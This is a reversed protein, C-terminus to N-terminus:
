SAFVDFRAVERCALLYVVFDEIKQGVVHACLYGFVNCRVQRLKAFRLQQLSEGGFWSRAGAWPAAGRRVCSTVSLKRPRWAASVFRANLAASSIQHILLAHVARRRLSFAELLTAQNSYDPPM